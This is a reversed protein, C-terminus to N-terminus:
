HPGGWDVIVAQGNERKRVNRENVIDNLNYDRAVKSIEIAEALGPALYDFTNPIYEMMIWLPNISIDYAFVRAFFQEECEKLKKWVSIEQEVSDIGGGENRAVKFVVTQGNAFSVKFAKRWAGAGAAAFHEGGFKLLERLMAGDNKGCKQLEHLKATLEYINAFQTM